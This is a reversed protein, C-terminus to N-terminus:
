PQENSSVLPRRKKLLETLRKAERDSAFYSIVNVAAYVVVITIELAPLTRASFWELFYGTALVTANVFLFHLTNMVVMARKSFEKDSLLPIYALTSALGIFLVGFIYALPLSVDIGWFIWIYISSFIFISATIACFLNILRSIKEKM